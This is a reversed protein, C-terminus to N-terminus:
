DDSFNLDELLGQGTIIIIILTLSLALIWYWNADVVTAITQQWMLPAEESIIFDEGRELKVVLDNFFLYLFGIVPPTLWVLSLRLILSFTDGIFRTLKGVLPQVSFSVQNLLRQVQFAIHGGEDLLQELILFDEPDLGTKVRKRLSGVLKDRAQLGADIRYQDYQARIQIDPNLRAALTDYLLTGRVLRVVQPPLPVDFRNAVKFFGLWLQATTRETWPVGRSRVAVAARQFEKQVESELAAVDLAPLPEMLTIAVRAAGEIDEAAEFEYVQQLAWSRKRGLTGIAGFDIFVLENDPLVLINAPHPDAHFFLMKWLAWYNAWLLREAVIKPDINFERLIGLSDEDKTEVIAIIDKLPVATVFEQTIVDDSSFNFYVHPATFYPRIAKTASTRFIDQHRAEWRFDLEDMLADHLEDVADLNIVKPLLNLFRLFFIIFQLIAFDAAFMEGVGPRRVKVAVKQGNERLIAQYVCAISGSGIPNPDFRSFVEHLPKGCAVEIRAIALETDFPEVTDLLRGLETYYEYPLLDIRISLQQGIKVFTGGLRKLVAYLRKARRENNDERWPLVFDAITGFGFAGMGYIWRVSRRLTTFLEPDYRLVPQFPPIEVANTTNRGTVLSPTRDIPGLIDRYSEALPMRVSSPSQINAAVKSSQISRSM